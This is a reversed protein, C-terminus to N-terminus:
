KEKDSREEIWKLLLELYIDYVTESKMQIAQGFPFIGQILGQRIKVPSASTYGNEKLIESAKEPKIVTIM